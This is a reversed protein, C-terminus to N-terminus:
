CTFPFGGFVHIQDAVTIHSLVTAMQPLFHLRLLLGADPQRSRICVLHRQRNCPTTHHGRESGMSKAARYFGFKVQAVHMHHKSSIAICWFLGKSSSSASSLLRCFTCIHNAVQYYRAKWGDEGLRIREESEMMEDFCDSKGKLQEKIKHQFDLIDRSSADNMTTQVLDAAKDGAEMDDEEM